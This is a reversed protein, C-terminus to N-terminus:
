ISCGKKQLEKSIKSYGPILLPMYVLAKLFERKINQKKAKEVKEFVKYYM